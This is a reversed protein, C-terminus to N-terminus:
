NLYEEAWDEYDKRLILLNRRGTEGVGIVRIFPFLGQDIGASLTKLGIPFGRERMDAIVDHVTMRAKKM